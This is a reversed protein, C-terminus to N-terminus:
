AREGQWRVTFYFADNPETFTIVPVTAQFPGAEVTRVEVTAGAPVNEEIWTKYPEKLTPEVLNGASLTKHPDLGLAQIGLERAFRQTLAECALEVSYPIPAPRGDERRVGKEWNGVTERTIGLADAAQAQTLKWAKRWRRFEGGTVSTEVPATFSLL